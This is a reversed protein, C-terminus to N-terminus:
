GSRVDWDRVEGDRVVVWVEGGWVEGGWVECWGGRVEEDRVGGEWM